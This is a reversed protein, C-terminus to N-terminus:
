IVMGFIFLGRLKRQQFAPLREVLGYSVNEDVVIKM